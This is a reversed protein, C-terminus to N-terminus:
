SMRFNEKWEEPIMNGNMFDNWSKLNRHPRVWFHPLSRRSGQNWNQMKSDSSTLLLLRKKVLRKWNKSLISLWGIRRTDSESNSRELGEGSHFYHRSFDTGISVFARDSIFIPVSRYCDRIISVTSGM